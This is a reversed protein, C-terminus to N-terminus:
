PASGFRRDALLLAVAGAVLALALRHRRM